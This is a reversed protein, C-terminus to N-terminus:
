RNKQRREQPKFRSNERRRSGRARRKKKEERNKRDNERDEKRTRRKRKRKGQQNEEEQQEERHQAERLQQSLNNPLEEQAVPGKSTTVDSINGLTPRCPPLPPIVCVCPCILMQKALELEELRLCQRDPATSCNWFVFEFCTAASPHCPTGPTCCHAPPQLASRDHHEPFCYYAHSSILNSFDHLASQRLGPSIQM